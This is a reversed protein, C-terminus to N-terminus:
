IGRKITSTKSVTEQWEKEPISHKTIGGGVYITAKSDSIKMCRLNVFLHSANETDENLNLEGLFGTYFDRNYNENNLIFQKAKDRPLGCVAPTPHLALILEKLSSNKNLIGNVNSKLHLLEGAKITKAEGVILDDSISVVQNEIFDTVLQQEEIEKKGWIVDNSGKFVQTGALSMTKFEKRNMELLTEPTAGFWLGIAPHFWVYVFATKYNQLLNKYIEVIDYKDLELEEKRSIVIKQVESAQIEDITNEILKIYKSKSSLNSKIITNHTTKLDESFSEVLLELSEKPFLVAKEKNNFPAFVFGSETFDETFILSADSSFLGNVKKQNPKRYVVFPKQLQYYDQIKKFINM